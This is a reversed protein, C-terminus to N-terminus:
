EVIKITADVNEIIIATTDVVTPSRKRIVISTVVMRRDFTDNTDGTYTESIKVQGNQYCSMKAAGGAAHTWVQSSIAISSDANAHDQLEYQFAITGWANPYWVGECGKKLNGDQPGTLYMITTGSTVEITDNVTVLFNNVLGYSEESGSDNPMIHARPNAPYVKITQALLTSLTTFCVVLLLVLVTQINTATKM